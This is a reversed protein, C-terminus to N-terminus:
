NLQLIHNTQICVNMTEDFEIIKYTFSFWDIQDLNTSVEM